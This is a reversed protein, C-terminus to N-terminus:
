GIKFTLGYLGLCREIERVNAQGLQGLEFRCFTNSFQGQTMTTIARVTGIQNGKRSWKRLKVSITMTDFFDKPSMSMIEERVGPCELIAQAQTLIGHHADGISGMMALLSEREKKNM